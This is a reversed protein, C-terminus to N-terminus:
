KGWATWTVSASVSVGLGRGPLLSVGVHPHKWGADEWRDGPLAEGILAGIPALFLSYMVATELTSGCSGTTGGPCRAGTALGALVSGALGLGAGALARSRPGKSVDLKTIAARPIILPERRGEAELTLREDDFATLTGM